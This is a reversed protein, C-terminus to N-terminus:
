RCTKRIMGSCTGSCCEANTKCSGGRQICRCDTDATDTSGDCDNDVSDACLGVENATPNGCDVACNCRSEGTECSGNGCCNSITQALCGQSADCSATQCAGASCLSDDPTHVCSRTNVNCTDTTCLIEDACQNDSTCRASVCSTTSWTTANDQSYLTVSASGVTGLNQGSGTAYYATVDIACGRPYTCGGYRCKSCDKVTQTYVRAAAQHDVLTATEAICPLGCAPDPSHVCGAASANCSDITCGDGDNCLAHNAINDCAGSGTNCSDATCDVGDNCDIPRYTCAQNGESCMDTTCLNGDDCLLPAGVQCRGNVCREVGNCFIDDSCYIDETCDLSCANITWTTGKNVSYLAVVRNRDTGLSAGDGFVYYREISTECGSPYGCRGLWCSSCDQESLTYVRSALVHADVTAEKVMCRRCGNITTHQCGQASNYGEITCHDHDNCGSFYLRGFTAYQLANAMLQGGDTTALWCTRCTFEPELASEAGDSLADFNLAVVQHSGTAKTAVLPQGDAWRALEVAGSRVSTLYHSSSVGGIFTQVGNMVPHSSDVVVIQQTLGAPYSNQTEVLPNYFGSIWRGELTYNGHMTVVGGGADHYAALNGGLTLLDTSRHWLIVADYRQLQEVTPAPQLFDADIHTVSDVLGTHLLTKQVVVFSASPIGEAFLGVALPWSAPRQNPNTPDTGMKYENIDRAGDGDTDAISPNAGIQIELSDILRDNDSDINLPNTRYQSLEQGDSLGDRDSDAQTPDTYHTNLEAGDNIGDGDSDATLPSTKAVYERLNALGDGDPDLGADSASNPNLGHTTEWSDKMGDGDSDVPATVVAQLLRGTVTKGQLSALSKGSNLLQSKIQSGSLSPNSSKLLAVAGTVHPAAMSTGSMNVYYPYVSTGLYTSFIDKGPAGLDVTTAGWNSGGQGFTALAGYRDVAAVSIINALDYSAPFVRLDSTDNDLGDNGAAAVFLIDATAQRAIADYLLQSFAAAGWSANVAVMNVGAQKLGLLYDLCEIADSAVGITGVMYGCGVIKVKWNVGAVGQGNNGVGAITGACHTGHGNMDRLEGDNNVADIGHIDDVYGNSDDDIVNGAIERPNTWINASLDPHRYQIGSDVLGIVVQDGTWEAKGNVMATMKDWAAPANIDVDVTGSDQGTNHLGWLSTFEPDDPVTDFSRYIYNPEAIAVDSSQRLTAVAENVSTGEPISVVALDPMHRFHRRIKGGPLASGIASRLTAATNARKLKILVEGEKFPARNAPASLAHRSVVVDNQQARSDPQEQKACSTFLLHVAGITLLKYYVRYKSM